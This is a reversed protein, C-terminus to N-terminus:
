WVAPLLRYRVRQAYELYGTLEARLFRDEITTRRLILLILPVVPALAWWSGLVVPGSLFAAIAGAYGPHRVYRYPGATILQHGRETQIRVVPSFFRNVVVAWAVLAWSAALVPLGALQASRPVESWHFRGVDLGAIAFHALYLPLGVLAIFWFEMNRVAPHWREQQLAPDVLFLGVLALAANVAVYTWFFPLDWRGASGFLLGILLGLFAVGRLANFM